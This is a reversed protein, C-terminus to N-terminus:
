ALRIYKRVTNRAIETAKAITRIGDAAEQRRLVDLIEIGTYEKNAM